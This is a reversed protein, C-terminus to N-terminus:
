AAEPSELAIREVLYGAERSFFAEPRIPFVVRVQCHPYRAAVVDVARSISMARVSLRLPAGGSVEIAVEVM